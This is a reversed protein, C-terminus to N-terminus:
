VIYLMNSSPIFISHLLLTHYMSLYIYVENSVNQDLQFGYYTIIPSFIMLITGILAFLSMVILPVYFWHRVAGSLLLMADCKVTIVVYPFLLYNYWSRENRILTLRFLRTSCILLGEIFYRIM